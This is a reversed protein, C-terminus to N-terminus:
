QNGRMAHSTSSATWDRFSSMRDDKRIEEYEGDEAIYKCVFGPGMRKLYQSARILYQEAAEDQMLDM